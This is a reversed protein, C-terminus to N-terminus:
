RSFCNDGGSQRNIKEALGSSVPLILVENHHYIARIGNESFAKRTPENPHMNKSHSKQKRM